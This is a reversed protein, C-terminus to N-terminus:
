TSTKLTGRTKRRYRSAAAYDSFTETEGEATTVTYQPKTATSTTRAAATQPSMTSKNKGCNCGM